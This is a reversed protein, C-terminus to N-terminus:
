VYVKGVDFNQLDAFSFVTSNAIVELAMPMFAPPLAATSPVQL